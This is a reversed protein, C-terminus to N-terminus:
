RAAKRAPSSRRGTGISADGQGRRPPVVRHPPASGPAAESHYRVAAPGFRDQWDTQPEDFTRTVGAAVVRGDGGVTVARPDLAPFRPSGFAADRGGGADLRLLRGAATVLVARGARDAALDAAKAGLPTVGADGFTPDLAGGPDLRTVLHGMGRRGLVLSRGGDDLALALPAAPLGALGSDGFAPDPHGAPDFAGLLAFRGRSGAALIRGGPSVVVDAVRRMGAALGAEGFGTDASGDPLDRGLPSTGGALIGGASDAAVATAVGSRGDDRTAAWLVRGGEDLRAVFFDWDPVWVCCYPMAARYTTRGAVAVGGDPTLAIDRAETGNPGLSLSATGGRGFSRDLRGDALFRSVRVQTGYYGSDTPSSPPETSITSAVTTRGLADVAVGAASAKFQKVPAAAVGRDGFSPDVDGAQFSRAAAPFALLALLSLTLIHRTRPARM